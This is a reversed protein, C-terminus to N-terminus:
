PTMHVSWFLFGPICARPPPPPPALTSLSLTELPPANGGTAGADTGGTADGFGGFLYIFPCSPYTARVCVVSKLLSQNLFALFETIWKPDLTMCVAGSELIRPRFVIPIFIGLIESTM